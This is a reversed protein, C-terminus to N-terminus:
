IRWDFQENEAGETLDYTERYEYWKGRAFELDENHARVPVIFQQKLQQYRPYLYTKWEEFREFGCTMCLITADDHALKKIARRMKHKWSEMSDAALLTSLLLMEFEMPTSLCGFSGDTACLVISPVCIKFRRMSLRAPLDACLLNSLPVDRYLSEFPDIEGRLDDCTYQHLGSQDLVYGRSDGAWTFCGDYIGKQKREIMAMCLTTPFTRQMSGVIRISETARFSRLAMRQLAGHLHLQLGSLLMQGEEKTQPITRKEELWKSFSGAVIRSAIYAGTHDGMCEYRKGGLGGCGDTVCLSASEGDAQIVFSDEGMKPLVAYHVSLLQEDLFAGEKEEQQTTKLDHQM